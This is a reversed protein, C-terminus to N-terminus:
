RSSVDIIGRSIAKYGKGNFLDGAPDPTHVKYGLAILFPRYESLDCNPFNVTRVGIRFFIGKEKATSLISPTLHLYDLFEEGLASPSFFYKYRIDCIGHHVRLRHYLRKPLRFTYEKSIRAGSKLIWENYWFCDFGKKGRKKWHWGQAGEGIVLLGKDLDIYGSSDSWGQNATSGGFLLGVEDRQDDSLEGMAFKQTISGAESLRLHRQYGRTELDSPTQNLPLRCQRFHSPSLIREIILNDISFSNPPVATEAM